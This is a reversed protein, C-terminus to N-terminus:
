LVLFGSPNQSKRYIMKSREPGTSIMTIPVGLEKEILSIYDLAEKPLQNSLSPWPAIKKHSGNALILNIENLGSLIDLKTLAIETIRNHLVAEHVEKLNLWGCRRPRGTTAGYEKGKERLLNGIENNLETEFPGNGVRTTYAKMVGIRRPIEVYGFSEFVGAITTDSATVFPYTGTNIGIGFGQAGEFLTKNKRILQKTDQIYQRLKEISESLEEFIKEPNISSNYLKLNQVIRKKSEEQNSIFDKLMLGRRAYKDEYTPGIGRKTTGIKEDKGDAELHYDTTVSIRPDIALNKSTIEVGKDKLRQIEKLLSLPNLVMGQGLVSLKGRLIGTPILNLIYEKQEIKVTHGANAGGQFRAVCEYKDSLNDVVRGKGEDGYQLGLVVANSM